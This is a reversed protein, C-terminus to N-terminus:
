LISERAPYVAPSEGYFYSDSTIVDEAVALNGLALGLLLSATGWSKVMISLPASLSSKIGFTEKDLISTGKICKRDRSYM